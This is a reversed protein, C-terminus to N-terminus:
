AQLDIKFGTAGGMGQKREKEDYLEITEPQPRPLSEYSKEKPLAKKNKRRNEKYQGRRSDIAATEHIPEQRQIPMRAGFSENQM